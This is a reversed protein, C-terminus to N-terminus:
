IPSTAMKKAVCTNFNKCLQPKKEVCGDIQQADKAYSGGM